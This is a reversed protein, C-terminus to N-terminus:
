KKNENIKRLTYMSDMPADPVDGEKWERATLNSKIEYGLKELALESLTKEMDRPVITTMMYDEYEDEFLWKLFRIYWPYRYVAYNEIETKHVVRKKNIRVKRSM